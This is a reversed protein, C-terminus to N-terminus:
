KPEGEGQQNVYETVKQRIEDKSVGARRCLQVAEKLKELADHRRRERVLPNTSIFSGKGSITYIVQDRELEQYAKQVTNPNVGLERALSRVSPLQMDPPYIELLVLETIRSKLQEYIPRRDQNDLIIM